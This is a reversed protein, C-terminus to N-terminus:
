LGFAMNNCEMISDLDIVFLIIFNFYDKGSHSQQIYRHTIIAQMVALDGNAESIRNAVEDSGSLTLIAWCCQRQLKASHQNIDMVQILAPIGSVEEFRSRNEKSGHTLNTVATACHLMVTEDSIHNRLAFCLHKM